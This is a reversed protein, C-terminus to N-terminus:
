PAITVFELDADRWRPLWHELAAVVHARDGRLLRADGDHMLIIDGPQVHALRAIVRAPPQAKWDHCLRSWTAVGRFGLARTVGFLQPGRFGFPPRMWQMTLANAGHAVKSATSVVAGLADGVAEECQRLEQAIRARSMWILNPHTHTHNALLHGRAAIERVIEPCKAAFQGIVFFTAPADYRALLDLLRPTTAPNPGDDFTLAIRRSQEDEAAAPLRRLVAGFLQSRPAVAGWAGFGAGAAAVISPVGITWPDMSVCERMGILYLSCTATVPRSPPVDLHWYFIPSTNEPQFVDPAAGLFLPRIV